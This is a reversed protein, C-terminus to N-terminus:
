SVVDLGVVRSGATPGDRGRDVEGGCDLRNLAGCRSSGQEPHGRGRREQKRGSLAREDALMSQVLTTRVRNGDTRGLGRTVPAQLEQNTESLVARGARMERVERAAHADVDLPREAGERKGLGRVLMPEQEHGS